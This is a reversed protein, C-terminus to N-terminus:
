GFLLGRAPAVPDRKVSLARLVPTPHQSRETLMSVKSFSGNAAFGTQLMDTSLPLERQRELKRRKREPRSRGIRQGAFFSSATKKMEQSGRVVRMRTRPGLM